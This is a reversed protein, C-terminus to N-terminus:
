VHSEVRSDQVIAAPGRLVFLALVVGLAVIGSATMFAVHYGATL